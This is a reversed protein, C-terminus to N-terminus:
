IALGNQNVGGAVDPMKFRIVWQDGRDIRSKVEEASLNLSTQLKERVEYNYAFTKVEAEYEKRLANLEDASDFAYYASGNEVM